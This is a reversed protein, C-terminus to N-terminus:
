KGAYILLSMAHSDDALSVIWMFDDAKNESYFVWVTLDADGRSNEATSWRKLSNEKCCCCTSLTFIIQFALIESKTFFFLLFFCSLNTCFLLSTQFPVNRSSFHCSIPWGLYFHKDCSFSNLFVWAVVVGLVLVPRNSIMRTKPRFVDGAKRMSIVLQQESIYGKISAASVYFWDCLQDNSASINIYTHANKCDSGAAALVLKSPIYLIWLQLLKQKAITM